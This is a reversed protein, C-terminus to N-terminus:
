ISKVNIDKAKRPVCLKPFLVNCSGSCKGLSIMFPYYRFAVLNLDSLTPTAM